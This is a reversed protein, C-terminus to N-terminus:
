PKLMHAVVSPAFPTGKQSVLGQQAFPEGRDQKELPFHRMSRRRRDHIGGELVM